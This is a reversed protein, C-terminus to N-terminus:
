KGGQETEASGVFEALTKRLESNLIKEDERIKRAAISDSEAAVRVHKVNKRKPKELKRLKGDALTVYEGERELVFFYQGKDHGALSVVIHSKQADM